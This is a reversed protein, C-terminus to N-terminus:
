NSFHYTVTDCPGTYCISCFRTLKCLKGPFQIVSFCALDWILKAVTIWVICVASDGVVEHGLSSLVSYLLMVVSLMLGVISCGDVPYGAIGDNSMSGCWSYNGTRVAMSTMTQLHNLMVTVPVVKRSRIYHM